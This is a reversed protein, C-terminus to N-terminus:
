HHAPPSPPDPNPDVLYPFQDTARKTPGDVHDSIRPGKAGNMLYTYLTDMCDDNLSRGGCTEHPQGAVVAREIELFSDEAFPKGYDVILYDALLLETLPHTGDTALPWQTSGDIGDWFSLNANLRARYAGVYDPGLNFADEANFLDRIELDRNVTDYTKMGLVANELEPRGFREWRVPIKGNIVTEAVVAVLTGTDHATLDIEVVVSFVNKGDSLIKGPNKFSLKGTTITEQLALADSFFPDWRPGAFVRLGESGAVQNVEFDVTDGTSVALHGQQRAGNPPDFTVDITIETDDTGPRFFAPNSPEPDIPRIRFRYILADSLFGGPDAYPVTNVVLALHGPRDPAPFAYADTIDAIPLQHARPGSNHHSM